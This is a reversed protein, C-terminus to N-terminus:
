QSSELSEAVCITKRRKTSLARRCTASRHTRNARLCFVNTSTFNEIAVIGGPFSRQSPYVWRGSNCCTMCIWIAVLVSLLVSPKWRNATM